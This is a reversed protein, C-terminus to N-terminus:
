NRKLDIVKLGDSSIISKSFNRKLEETKVLLHNGLLNGTIKQFIKSQAGGEKEFDHFLCYHKDFLIKTPFLLPFAISWDQTYIIDYNNEKDKEIVFNKLGDMSGSLSFIHLDENRSISDIECGKKELADKINKAFKGTPDDKTRYLLLIKM